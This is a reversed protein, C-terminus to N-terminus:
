DLPRRSPLPEDGGNTRRERARSWSQRAFSGISFKGVAAHGSRQQQFREQEEDDCNKRALNIAETGVGCRLNARIFDDIVRAVLQRTGFIETSCLGAAGSACATLFGM